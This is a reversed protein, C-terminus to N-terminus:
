AAVEQRGHTLVVHREEKPLYESWQDVWPGRFTLVWSTGFSTVRHFTSRKTIIPKFSPYYFWTGDPADVFTEGLQGWLLWSICNFAHSHFAERSGHEFCLIGVSFFRKWEILWYATVTSDPGGDKTRSLIKM